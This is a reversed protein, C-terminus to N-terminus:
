GAVYDEAVPEEAYGSRGLRFLSTHIIDFEVLSEEGLDLLM